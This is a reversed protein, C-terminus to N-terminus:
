LTTSITILTNANANTLSTGIGQKVLKRYQKLFKAKRNLNGNAEAAEAANLKAIAEDPSGDGWDIITLNRLGQYSFLLPQTTVLESMMVAIDNGDQGSLTDLRLERNMADNFAKLPQYTPGTPDSTLFATVENVSARGDHNMDLTTFVTTLTGTNVTTTGTYARVQSAANPDLALLQVLTGAGTKVINDFARQRAADSGPTPASNIILDPGITLTYSGTIGPSEPEAEIRYTGPGLNTFSYNGDLNTTADSTTTGTLHITWGSLGVEGADKM